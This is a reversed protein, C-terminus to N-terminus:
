GNEVHFIGGYQSTDTPILLRKSNRGRLDSHCCSEFFLYIHKVLILIFSVYVYNYLLIVTLRTHSNGLQQQEITNSDNSTRPTVRNYINRKENLQLDKYSKKQYDDM